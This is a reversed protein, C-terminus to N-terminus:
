NFKWNLLKLNLILKKNTLKLQEILITSITEDSMSIKGEIKRKDLKIKWKIEFGIM